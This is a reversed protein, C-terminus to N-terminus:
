ALRRKLLRWGWLRWLTAEHGYRESFLAVCWPAKLKYYSRGLRLCAIGYRLSLACRIYDSQRFPGAKIM